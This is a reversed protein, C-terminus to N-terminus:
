DSSADNRLLYIVHNGDIADRLFYATAIWTLGKVWKTAANSLMELPFWRVYM